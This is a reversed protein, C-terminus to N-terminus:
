CEAVLESHELTSDICSVSFMYGDSVGYFWLDKKDAAVLFVFGLYKARRICM